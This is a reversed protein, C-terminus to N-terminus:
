GNAVLQLGPKGILRDVLQYSVIVFQRTELAAVIDMWCTADVCDDVFGRFVM